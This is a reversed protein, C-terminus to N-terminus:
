KIKVQVKFTGTAGAALSSITWNVANATSNYVGTGASGSVFTTNTPIGFNVKVNSASGTGTNKYSITYTITGGPNDTTKDASISLAVNPNSSTTPASVTYSWSDIVNGADDKAQCTVTYGNIDVIVYNYKAITGSYGTSIPAGCTGNIVQYISGHLTRSYLHEHGTFLMRVRGATMKNWFDDRETPYYDLSTGKHEAVPYGPEHEMVFVHPQTTKALDAALWDRQLHHMQGYHEANLFVFHANQHDFSFVMEQDTSPGNLPQNVKARLVNEQVTSTAIEHNGPTYYWPVTLKNMISVWSDMQSSVTSDSTSGTVADGEFLVLDVGETNIRSVIKALETSNVGNSSGRSDAISAFKWAFSPAAMWALILVAVSLVISVKRARM